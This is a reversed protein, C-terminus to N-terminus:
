KVYKLVAEHLRSLMSLERSAERYNLCQNQKLRDPHNFVYAQCEKIQKDLVTLFEKADNLYFDVM